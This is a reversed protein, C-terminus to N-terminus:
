QELSRKTRLFDVPHDPAAGLASVYVFRGVGAARAADVLARHGADDVAASTYRGRGLAGHAAALVADVGSCARALSPPDTLDGITAEGGLLEIVRIREPSRTMGRVRHGAAHLARVAERGLTGSAGVVLVLM